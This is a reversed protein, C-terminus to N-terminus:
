VESDAFSFPFDTILVTDRYILTIQFNFSDGANQWQGKPSQSQWQASRSQAFSVATKRNAKGGGKLRDGQQHM